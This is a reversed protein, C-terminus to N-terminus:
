GALRPLLMAIALLLVGIAAFNFTNPRAIAIISVILAALILLLILIGLM